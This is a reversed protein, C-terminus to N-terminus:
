EEETPRGVKGKGETAFLLALGKDPRTWPIAVMLVGCDPCNTRPVRAHLQTVHEFFNFHRWTKAVPYCAKHGDRGCKPCAFFVM